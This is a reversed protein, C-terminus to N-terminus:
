IPMRTVDRCFDQVMEKWGDLTRCHRNGDGHSERPIQATGTMETGIHSDAELRCSM